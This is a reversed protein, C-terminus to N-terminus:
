PKNLNLKNALGTRADDVNESFYPQGSKKSQRSTEQNPNPKPWDQEIARRLLGLRNRSTGRLPLWEIQKLVRQISYAKAFRQATSADFGEGKLTELCAAISESDDVDNAQSEVRQQQKLNNNTITIQLGTVKESREEPSMKRGNGTVNESREISTAEAPLKKRGNMSDVNANLWKLGYVASRSKTGGNRDFFGQHPQEASLGITRACLVPDDLWATGELAVFEHPPLLVYVDRDTPTHTHPETVIQAAAGLGALEHVLVDALETFFANQHPSLVLVFSPATM